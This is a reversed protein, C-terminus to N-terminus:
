SREKKQSSKFNIKSETGALLRAVNARHRWIALLGLFLACGWVVPDKPTTLMVFIPMTVAAGISGLSVYRTILVLALFVAFAALAQLPYIFLLCGFSTAIGKGGKFGFFVPFNHGLVAGVAGVLEGGKNGVLAAGILVAVIGKLMDGMFTLAAMKKGMVRLMNTTGSNGSGKTRIDEHGLARSLLVGPSISGLLYGIVLTLALRLM